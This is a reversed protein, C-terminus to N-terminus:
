LYYLSAQRWPPIILRLPAGGRIGTRPRRTSHQSVWCPRRAALSINGFSTEPACPTKSYRPSRYTHPIPASPGLSGAFAPSPRRAPAGGAPAESEGGGGAGAHSAAPGPEHIRVPGAPHGQTQVAFVLRHEGLPRDGAKRKCSGPGPDRPGGAAVPLGGPAPHQGTQVGPRHRRAGSGQVGSLPTPLLKEASTRKGPQPRPTVRGGSVSGRWSSEATVESPRGPRWPAPGGTAPCKGVKPAPPRM